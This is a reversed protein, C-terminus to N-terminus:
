GRRHRLKLAALTGILGFTATNAAIIPTSGLIIGYLLWLLVGLAYALLTVGSLDDVSKSRWSKLVQPVFALTTLAAACYGVVDAFRTM